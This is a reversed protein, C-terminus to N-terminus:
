ELTITVTVDAEYDGNVLTAKQPWKVNFTGIDQSDWVFGKYVAMFQYTEGTPATITIDNGTDADAKTFVFNEGGEPDVPVVYEDTAPNTKQAGTTDDILIMNGIEITFKFTNGSRAFRKGVTTDYGESADQYLRFNVVIDHEDINQAAALTEEGETYTHDTIDANASINAATVVADSATATAGNEAQDIGELKFGPYRKEVKSTIKVTASGASVAAFAFGAVIALVMLIAILKKM